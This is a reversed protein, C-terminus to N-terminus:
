NDARSGVLEARSGAFWQLAIVTKADAIEGIEILRRARELPYSEVKIREDEDLSQKGASLATAYFFYIVEDCFGPTMAVGGLPRMSAATYGTEETLERAACHAASEGPEARGAPIEWVERGLAHRYQRVLVIEDADTAAVIAASAGHQVIDVAHTAGDPYRVEDTRVRFIRGSFRPISSIVQPKTDM